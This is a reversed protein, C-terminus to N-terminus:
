RALHLRRQEATPFFPLRLAAGGCQKAEEGAAQSTEEPAPATGGKLAEARLAQNNRYARDTAARDRDAISLKVEEPLKPDNPDYYQGKHLIPHSERGM